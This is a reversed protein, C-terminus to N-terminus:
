KKISYRKLFGDVLIDDKMHLTILCSHRCCDLSHSPYLVTLEYYWFVGIMGIAEQDIENAAMKRVKEVKNGRRYEEM